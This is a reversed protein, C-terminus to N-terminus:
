RNRWSWRQAAALVKAFAALRQEMREPLEADKLREKRLSEAEGCLAELHGRIEHWRGIEDFIDSAKQARDQKLEELGGMFTAALDDHGSDRAIMSLRALMIDLPLRGSAEWKGVTPLSVGLERSFSEQTHGM